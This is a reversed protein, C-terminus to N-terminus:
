RNAPSTGAGPNLPPDFLGPRPPSSRLSTEIAEVGRQASQAARTEPYAKALETLKNLLAQLEAAAMKERQQRRERDKADQVAKELAATQQALQEASLHQSLEAQLKVYRSRLEEVTPPRPPDLPGTEGAPGSLPTPAPVNQPSTPTVDPPAGSAPTTPTAPSTDAGPPPGEASAQYLLGGTGLGVAAVVVLVGLASKVKNLLMIKLVGETLAAIGSSIAGAAPGAAFLSAARITAELLPVPVCAAAQGSLTAALAGVSLTVGQRALRKQLLARGRVLRGAVTGEPWCLDGAAEKRTKGQLDCLVIPLRYKDPLARLERDLLPLVDSCEENTRGATEPVDAMLVERGRRRAAVARTRVATQYAVGYLWNGVLSRPRITAAKRVLVLFTAQFADEADQQHLLIRRCVGLVMPGHRRVLAAFADADQSALYRTLLESDPVGPLDVPLGRVVQGIVKGLKSQVM